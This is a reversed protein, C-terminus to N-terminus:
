SAQYRVYTVVCDVYTGRQWRSSDVEADSTMVRIFIVARM